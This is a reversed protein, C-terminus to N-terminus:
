QRRYLGHTNPFDRNASRDQKGDSHFRRRSGCECVVPLLVRGPRNQHLSHSLGNVTVIPVTMSSLWIGSLLHTM